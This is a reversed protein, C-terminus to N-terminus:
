HGTRPHVKTKVKVFYALSLWVKKPNTGFQEYILFFFKLKGVPILFFLSIDQPRGCNNNIPVDNNHVRTKVKVFYALSLWVKKPNTGFQGYILFFFKLKGVPILFFLSIDQPRGCNNNIKVYNNNICPIIIM